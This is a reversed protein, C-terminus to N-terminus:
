ILEGNMMVMRSSGDANIFTITPHWMLCDRHTGSTNAGGFKKNGGAAKHATGKIKEDFLMEGTQPFDAVGIGLEGIVAAQPDDEKFFANRLRLLFEDASRSSSLYDISSIRGRSYGFRIPFAPIGFDGITGDVIAVGEASDELPAWYAEGPPWNGFDGPKDITLECHLPRNGIGLLLSTGLQTTIRAERAGAFADSIKKMREAMIGYDVDWLLAEETIGPSHMVRSQKGISVLSDPVDPCLEKSGIQHGLLQVRFPTEPKGESTVGGTFANVFVYPGGESVSALLREIGGNEFRREGINHARVSNGLEGAAAVFASGVGARPIDHVVFVQEGKQIKLTHQLIGRASATLRSMTGVSM